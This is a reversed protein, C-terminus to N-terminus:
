LGCPSFVTVNFPATQDTSNVIGAVCRVTPSAQVLSCASATTASRRGLRGAYTWVATHRAPDGALASACIVASSAAMSATCGAGMMAGAGAPLFVFFALGAGGGVSVAAVTTSLFLKAAM